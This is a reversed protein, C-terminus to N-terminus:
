RHPREGTHIYSHLRLKTMTSFNKNCCQCVHPTRSRPKGRRKRERKVKMGLKSMIPTSSDMLKQETVAKRPRGRKRKGPAAARVTDMTEPIKAGSDGAIGVPNKRPRGRGRRTVGGSDVIDTTSEVKLPMGKRKRRTHRGESRQGAGTKTVDTPPVYDSDIPKCRHHECEKVSAFSKSCRM